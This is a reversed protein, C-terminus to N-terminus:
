FHNSPVPAFELMCGKVFGKVFAVTMMDGVAKISDERVLGRAVGSWSVEDPERNSSTGASKSAEAMKRPDLSVWIAPM